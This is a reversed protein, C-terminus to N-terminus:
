SCSVPSFVGYILTTARFCPRMIEQAFCRSIFIKGKLIFLNLQESGKQCPFELDGRSGAGQEGAEETM